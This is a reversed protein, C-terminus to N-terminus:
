RSVWSNGLTELQRQFRMIPHEPIAQKPLQSFYVIMSEEGEEFDYGVIQLIQLEVNLSPLEVSVLDFEGPGAGVIWTPYGFGNNGHVGIWDDDRVVRVQVAQLPNVKRAQIQRAWNVMMTFGSIGVDAVSDVLVTDGPQGLRSWTALGGSDTNNSPGSPIATFRVDTGLMEPVSSVATDQDIVNIGERLTIANSFDNGQSGVVYVLFDGDVGAGPIKKITAADFTAALQLVDLHSQGQGITPQGPSTLSGFASGGQFRNTGFGAEGVAGSTRGRVLLQNVYCTGSAPSNANRIGILGAPAGGGGWQVNKDQGNLIVKVLGTQGGSPGTPQQSLVATLEFPFTASVNTFYNSVGVQQTYTGASWTGIRVTVNYIQTGGGTETLFFDLMTANLGTSDSKLLIGVGIPGVGTAAVVGHLTVTAASLQGPNATFSAVTIENANDATAQLAPLNFLPDGPTFSWGGNNAHYNASDGSNWNAFGDDLIVTQCGTFAKTSFATGVGNLLITEGPLVQSQQLLWLSDIGSLEWPAGLTPTMDTVIGSFRPTGTVKGGLYGEARMRIQSAWANQIVDWQSKYRRFEPSRPAGPAVIRFQGLTSSGPIGQQPARVGWKTKHAHALEQVLVAGTNDNLIQIGLYDPHGANM